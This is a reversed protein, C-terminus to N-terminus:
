LRAHLTCLSGGGCLRMHMPGWAALCSWTFMCLAPVLLMAVGGSIGTVGLGLVMVVPM